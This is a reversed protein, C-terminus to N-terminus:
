QRGRESERCKEERGEKVKVITGGRERIEARLADGPAIGVYSHRSKKSM